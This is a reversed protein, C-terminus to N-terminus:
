LSQSRLIASVALAKGKDMTDQLEKWQDKLRDFKARSAKRFLLNKLLDMSDLGVGRDNITEFIRLAKAVDEAQIRILKVKNLLYGYVERESKGYDCSRVERSHPMQITGSQKCM